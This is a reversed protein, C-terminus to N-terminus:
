LLLKREEEILKLLKGVKEAMERDKPNLIQKVTPYSELLEM